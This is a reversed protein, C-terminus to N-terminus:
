NPREPDLQQNGAAFRERPRGYANEVYATRLSRLMERTRRRMGM